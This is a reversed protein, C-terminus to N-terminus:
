IQPNLFENWEKSFKKGIDTGFDDNETCLRAGLDTGTRTCSTYSFVFAGLSPVWVFYPSYKWQDKNAYDAEWLENYDDGTRKNYEEFITELKFAGNLSVEKKTKAQQYPLLLQPDIGAAACIDAWSDFLETPNQSLVEVGFLTGLVGKVEGQAQNYAKIANGKDITITEM